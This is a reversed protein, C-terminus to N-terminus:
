TVIWAHFNFSQWIQCHKGLKSLEKEVQEKTKCFMSGILRDDKNLIETDNFSKRKLQMHSRHMLQNLKSDELFTKEAIIVISNQEKIKRELKSLVDRREKNGLFQLTFISTIIEQHEEITDDLYNVISDKVFDFGGLRGKFDILDVGKKTVNPIQLSSLFSGQSCGLDVITDGPTLYEAVIDKLLSNLGKYNPISQEIHDAFNEIKSFDFNEKM